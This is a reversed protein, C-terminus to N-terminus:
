SDHTESIRVDRGWMLKTRLVDYYTRDKRKVLRISYDGKRVTVKVPSSLVEEFQGDAMIHVGRAKGEVEVTITSTDPVIVSRATLTHPSIPTLTIVRSAPVVIPGGSALSYATSGTPTAVILGDASYTSLYDEDVSIKLTIVRASGAKDIVIDNLGQFKTASGTATAELVTRDEILYRNSLIEDISRHLDEVSVEALFGLKGLNVGLIPTGKSGVLRAASLMTGDGGLAILIDCLEVLQKSSRRHDDDMVRGGTQRDIYEALDDALFCEVHKGELTRLLETLVPTIQTKELNGMLGFKM